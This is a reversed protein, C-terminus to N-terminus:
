PCGGRFEAGSTVCSSTPAMRTALFLNSANSAFAVYRGDASFAPWDSSLNGEEGGTSLSVRRTVGRWRDRVFVDETENTDGAVLNEADSGFAVYRGYASISPKDSSADAQLGDTSISIRRTKGM